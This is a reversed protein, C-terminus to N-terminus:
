TGPWALDGIRPSSRSTAPEGPALVAARCAPPGGHVVGDAASPKEAETGGEAEREEFQNVLGVYFISLGITLLIILLGMALGSPLATGMFPAAYAEAFYISCVAWVLYSGVTLISLGWRWRSRLTLLRQFEPDRLLDSEDGM